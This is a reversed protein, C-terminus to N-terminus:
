GRDRFTDRVKWGLRWNGAGYGPREIAKWTDASGMHGVQDPRQTTAAM